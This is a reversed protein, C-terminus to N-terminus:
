LQEGRVLKGITVLQARLWLEKTIIPPADADRTYKGSADLEDLLTQFRRDLEELALEVGTDRMGQALRKNLEMVADPVDEVPLLNLGYAYVPSSLM